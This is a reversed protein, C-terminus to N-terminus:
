ARGQRGSLVLFIRGSGSVTASWRAAAVHRPDRARAGAVLEAAAEPQGERLAVVAQALQMEISEPPPAGRCTAVCVALGLLGGRRAMTSATM